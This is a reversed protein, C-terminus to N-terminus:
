RLNTEQHLALLEEPSATGTEGIKKVTVASTLNGLALAEPLTAGAGLALACASLFSDGAGVIDVPPAIPVAPAFAMEGDLTLCMSGIAGLTVIVAQHTIAQLARAVPLYNEPTVAAPSMDVARASELENPKVVCSPFRAANSRSDVLVRAGSQALGILCDRVRKTVTGCAMQDSVAIVDATRAAQEISLILKEETAEDLPRTNEFDIRPDEYRVGGYGMRYPKVYTPTVRGACAPCLDGSLHLQGLLGVTMEGRWDRGLAAVPRVDRAGLACLNKVVNGAGGLAYNEEFIPLNHHPTERSLTSRRMDAVWYADLCIDGVVLVHVDPIKQILARLRAQSITANLM